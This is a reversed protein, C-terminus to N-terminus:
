AACCRARSWGRFMPCRTKLLAPCPLSALSRLRLFSGNHCAAFRLSGPFSRSRKQASEFDDRALYTPETFQFSAISCHRASGSFSCNAISHRRIGRCTASEMANSPSGTSRAHSSSSCRRIVGGSKNFCSAPNQAVRLKRRQQGLPNPLCLCLYLKAMEIRQREVRIHQEKQVTSQPHGRAPSPQAIAVSRLPQGFAYAALSRLPEGKSSPNTRRGPLASRADRTPM